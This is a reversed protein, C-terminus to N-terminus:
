KFLAVLASVVTALGVVAAVAFSAWTALRQSRQIELLKLEMDRRDLDHYERFLREAEYRASQLQHEDAARADPDGYGSGLQFLEAALKSAADNAALWRARAMQVDSTTAQVEGM